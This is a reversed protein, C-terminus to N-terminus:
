RRKYKIDIIQVRIEIDTLCCLQVIGRSHPLVYECVCMRARVRVCACVCSLIIIKTMLTSMFM